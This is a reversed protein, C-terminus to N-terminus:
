ATADQMDNVQSFGEQQEKAMSVVNNATLLRQGTGFNWLLEGEKTIQSGDPAIVDWTVVRDGVFQQPAIKTLFVALGKTRENYVGYISIKM